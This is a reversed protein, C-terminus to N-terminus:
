EEYFAIARNPLGLVEYVLGVSSITSAIEIPDGLERRIKLAALYGDLAQRYQGTSRHLVAMNHHLRALSHPRRATKRADRLADIAPRPNSRQAHTGAINNYMLTISEGHGSAKAIQLLAEYCTQADAFDRQVFKLYCLNSAAYDVQRGESYPSTLPEARELRQRAGDFQRLRIAVLGGQTLAFGQQLTLEAQEFLRAARDALDIAAAGDRTAAALMSARYLSAAEREPQALTAWLSAAEESQARATLKDDHKDSALAVVAMDLLWAARTKPAPARPLRQLTLTARADRTQSADCSVDIEITTSGAPQLLIDFRSVGGDVGRWAGNTVGSGAISVTIDAGDEIVSLSWSGAALTAQWRGTTPECGVVLPTAAVLKSTNEAIAAPSIGAAAASLLAALMLKGRGEGKM